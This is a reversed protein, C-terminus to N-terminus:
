VPCCYEEADIESVAEKVDLLSDHVQRVRVLAALILGETPAHRCEQFACQLHDLALQTLSHLTNPTQM